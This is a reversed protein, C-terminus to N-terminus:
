RLKKIHLVASEGFPSSLSHRKSGTIIEGPILEGNLPNFWEVHFEGPFESLDLTIPPTRQLPMAIWSIWQHLNIEKLWGALEARRRDLWKVGGHSEALVFVLYEKGPDALSYQSSCWDSSPFMAALNIKDAFTLTYGMNKRILDWESKSTHNKFLDSTYPDMFIPNLGRLFSKWVWTYNGGIGWLHDTDNIIIKRGDNQPPNDRYHVFYSNISPCGPSIAQAGSKWLENGDQDWACSYIVPHQKPKGTQYSFIYSILHTQWPDSDAHSENAVEYLVNDLHNVTDIVKRIYAKQLNVIDMIQMTHTELGRGDKDLDGDIGNVNNNLNFPHGDWRWPALSHYLGHGEFLMISVYIGRDRAASVRSLLRDFYPQDFQTLDFKPKGDLATESGSRSWPFHEVYIIGEDPYHFRTLELTWLRIFNHHNRTLFKLYDSFDFLPPPNTKGIDKLNGWTHSGTLYIVKGSGDTFYRPNVSHVRLPGGMIPAREAAILPNSWGCMTSILAMLLSLISLCRRRYSVSWPEDVMNASGHHIM